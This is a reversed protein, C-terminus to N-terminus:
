NWHNQLDRYTRFPGDKPLQRSITIIQGKKMSPLVHCWVAGGTSSPDLVSDPDSRFRKLVLPPLGFDELQM